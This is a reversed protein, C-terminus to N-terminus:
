FNTFPVDRLLHFIIKLGLINFYDRKCAKVIVHILNSLELDLISYTTQLDIVEEIPAIEDCM